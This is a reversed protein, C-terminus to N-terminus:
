QAHPQDETKPVSGRKRSGRGIRGAVVAQGGAGVSVYQVVVRQKGRTKLKLLALAGAQYCDMMRASANVLRAINEPQCNPNRSLEVLWMATHHAAALQHCLMKEISNRAQAAMAADVAPELVGAQLAASMRDGSAGASISNPNELTDIIRACAGKYPEHAEGRHEWSVAEGSSVTIPEAPKLLQEARARELRARSAYVVGDGLDTRPIADEIAALQNAQIAQEGRRSYPTHRKVAM